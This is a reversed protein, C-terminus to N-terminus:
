VATRPTKDLRSDCSPQSPHSSDVSELEEKEEEEVSTAASAVAPTPVSAAGAVVSPVSATASATSKAAQYLVDDEEMKQLYERAKEDDGLRFYMEARKFWSDHQQRRESAVAMRESSAALVAATAASSTSELEFKDILKQRKAKKSGLPRALNDGQVKDINNAALKKDGEDEEEETMPDFKPLQHLTPVCSTHKFPKGEITRYVEAAQEIYMETTWGSQEKEMVQKYYSNYKQVEKQITKQFRNRVSEWTWKTTSKVEAEEDYLIYMKSYVKKWFDSGKQNAGDASDQSVNVFARCLFLDEEDTWRRVGKIADPDAKVYGIAAAAAEAAKKTVTEKAAKAAKASSKGKTADGKKKEQTPLGTSRTVKKKAVGGPLHTKKTKAM